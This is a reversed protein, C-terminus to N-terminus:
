HTQGARRSESRLARFIQSPGTPSLGRLTGAAECLRRGSQVAIPAGVFGILAGLGASFLPFRRIRARLREVGPSSEGCRGIRDTLGEIAWAEEQDLLQAVTVPAKRPAPSAQPNM